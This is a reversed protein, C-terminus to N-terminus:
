FAADFLHSKLRHKCINFLAAVKLFDPLNNCITPATVRFARSATVTKVRHLVILLDSSSCLTRASKYSILLDKLYGPLQCNRTRYTINAVKYTIWHWVPLWPTCNACYNPSMLITRLNVPLVLLITKCESFNQLTLQVDNDGCSFHPRGHRRGILM